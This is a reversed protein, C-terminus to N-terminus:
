TDGAMPNDLHTWVDDLPDAALRMATTAKVPLPDRLLAAADATGAGRIAAAVIGWSRAPEADHHRALLTVLETAVTGVAAAALKTRLVAPDDSPLDGRLDPAEIGAARLRAPSVRVGGLDRYVIRVPRGARLVALTNQGHAELAVGRGLVALLPPWLVAALDALWRYPDGGHDRVAECLLPRGDAPSLAALAALPVVTEDPGIRPARRRLYALRRQPEGDVLVAGAATEALVTLPLDATLTRLLASLRPGNHVAAPSVTRVASTMQVDVATKIHDGGDVPAVTRLSMLPRVPGTGGADTLWPFEARLREAQWPHAYLVPPADGLWRGPPVALRRLRLVRGHEPAYALVDAVTLGGRTRCCPHLPHGDVVLQELRGLGDPDGAAGRLTATAAWRDRRSTESPNWDSSDAPDRGSSDAPHGGSSESADRGSGEPPRGGNERPARHGPIDSSAATGAPPGGAAAARGLALNAVSNDLEAALRARPWLAAALAAPDDCARGDLHAVLGPLPEAFPLAGSEPFTVRRGGDFSVVVAGEGALAWPGAGPFVASDNGAGPTLPAGRDPLFASRRPGLLPFLDAPQGAPPGPPADAAPRGRTVGARGPLPERIVRAPDPLPERTVRARGPLPERALAGLLRSLV